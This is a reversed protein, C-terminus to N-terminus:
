TDEYLRCILCEFQLPTSRNDHASFKLSLLMVMEEQIKYIVIRIRKM